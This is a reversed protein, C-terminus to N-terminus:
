RTQPTTLWNNSICQGNIVICYMGTWSRQWRWGGKTGPANREIWTTAADPSLSQHCAPCRPSAEERFHGGCRCNQLWPETDVLIPGHIRLPAAPPKGTDDWGGVLTTLGCRDCYAYATDAFGNHILYYDFRAHCQDCKGSGDRRDHSM